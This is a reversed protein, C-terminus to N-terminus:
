ACILDVEGPNHDETREPEYNLQVNFGEEFMAALRAEIRQTEAGAKARRSGIRRLNNIAAPQTTRSCRRGLAVPFLHRGM